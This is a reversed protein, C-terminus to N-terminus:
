NRHLLEVVVREEHHIWVEAVDIGEARAALGEPGEIVVGVEGSRELLVVHGGPPAELARVGERLSPGLDRQRVLDILRHPEDSSRGDHLIEWSPLGGRLRLGSARLRRVLDRSDIEAAGLAIAREHDVEHVDYHDGQFGVRRKGLRHAFEHLEELSEDSVLHAWLRGRWPWRPTDVLIM